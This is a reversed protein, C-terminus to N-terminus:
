VAACLSVLRFGGEVAAAKRSGMRSGERVRRGGM